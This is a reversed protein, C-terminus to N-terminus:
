KNFPGTKRFGIIINAEPAGLCKREILLSCGAIVM